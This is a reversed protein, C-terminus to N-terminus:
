KANTVAETIRQVGEDSLGLFPRKEQNYAAKEAERASNFFIRGEYGTPTEKTESQIANLMNGTFTLDVPDTRRGRKERYKAYGKSYPSMPQNDVDLGKRTRVVIRTAEDSIAQKFARGMAACKAEVARIIVNANNVEFRMGWNACMHPLFTYPTHADRPSSQPSRM